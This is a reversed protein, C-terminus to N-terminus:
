INIYLQSMTITILIKNRIRRSISKSHVYFVCLNIKYIDLSICKIKMFDRYIKKAKLFRVESIEKASRQSSTIIIYMDRLFECIWLLSSELLLKRFQM